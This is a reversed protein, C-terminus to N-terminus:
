FNRVGGWSSRCSRCFVCQISCHMEQLANIPWNRSCAVSSSPFSMRQYGKKRGVLLSLQSLGVLLGLNLEQSILADMVSLLTLRPFVSITKYTM